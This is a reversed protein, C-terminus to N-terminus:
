HPLEILRSAGNITLTAFHDCDGNGYNLSAIWPSTSPLTERRVKIIGKSIWRCIFKKRLAEAIESQWAYILDGRKVRGHASGEITFIDDLHISPTGNGEIQTIIRHSTWLSYNGNPRSLKAETVDVTYQALNSSSSNTVKHTGQVSINGIKFGDFITTASKGPVILRGTYETIIKGYRMHGDKGLCGNGFDLVIKVPFPEPANLKTITVDFCRLSDPNLQRGSTGIRGFVGTGAIGVDNNVGMVNDFVDDFVLESETESETSFTAAEEEQAATLTESTEKKCGIFVLSTFLAITISLTIPTFKKM